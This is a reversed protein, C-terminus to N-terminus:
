CNLTTLTINTVTTTVKEAPENFYPSLFEAILYGCHAHITIADFGCRKLRGCGKGFVVVSKKIEEVTLKRVKRQAVPWEITGPV